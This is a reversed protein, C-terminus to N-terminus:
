SDGVHKTTRLPRTTRTSAIPGLTRSDLGRRPRHIKLPSFIKLVGEKPPFIVEYAEYRLIRRCTLYCKFTIFLYNRRCFEYNGEGTREAKSSSLVALLVALYSQHIFLSNKERLIIGGHNEMSMYWRASSFLGTQPKLESVYDWELCTIMIIM